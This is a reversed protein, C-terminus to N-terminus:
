NFTLLLGEGNAREAVLLKKDSDIALDVLSSLM